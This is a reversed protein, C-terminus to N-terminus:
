FDFDDIFSTFHSFMIGDLDIDVALDITESVRM